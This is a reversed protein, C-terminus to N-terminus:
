KPKVCNGNAFGNQSNCIEEKEELYRNFVQNYIRTNKWSQINIQDIWLEM